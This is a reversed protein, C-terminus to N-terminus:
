KILTFKGLNLVVFDTAFLYIGAFVLIFAGYAAVAYVAFRKLGLPQSGKRPTAVSCIVPIRVACGEWLSYIHMM